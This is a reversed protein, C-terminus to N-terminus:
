TRGRLLGAAELKAILLHPNLLDAWYLRVVTFGQSRLFDERIKEEWVAHGPDGGTWDDNLYKGKGDFEAIARFRRWLFDTFYTRTRSEFRAQLEPMEFGVEFMVARAM